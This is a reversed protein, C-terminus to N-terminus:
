PSPRAGTSRPWAPEFGVTYAHSGSMQVVTHECTLGGEPGFRGAVWEFTDFVADPGRDIPGWAGFLTIDPDTDWLEIYPHPDGSTIAQIAADTQRLTAQLQRRRKGHRADAAGRATPRHSRAAPHTPPTHPM